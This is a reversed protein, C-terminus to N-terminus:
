WRTWRSGKPPAHTMLANRVKGRLQNITAAFTGGDRQGPQEDSRRLATQPQKSLAACDGHAAEAARYAWAASASRQRTARRCNSRDRRPDGGDQLCQVVRTSLPTRSQGDAPQRLHTGSFLVTEQPVVGFHHRLEDASSTASTTATSRSRAAPPYTSARCSSRSRARARAQLGWQRPLDIFRLRYFGCRALARPQRMGPASQPM